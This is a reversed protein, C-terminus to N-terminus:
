GIGKKIKVLMKYSDRFRSRMEGYQRSIMLYYYQPDFYLLLPVYTVTVGKMLETM